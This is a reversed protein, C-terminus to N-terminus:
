PYCCLQGVKTINGKGSAKVCKEAKPANFSFRNIRFQQSCCEYLRILLRSNPLNKGFFHPM